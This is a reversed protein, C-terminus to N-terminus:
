GIVPDLLLTAKTRKHRELCVTGWGRRQSELLMAFSTDKNIKIQSIPDMLIGLKIM